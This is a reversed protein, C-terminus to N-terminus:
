LLKTSRREARPFSWYTKRGKGRGPFNQLGEEQRLSHGAHKGTKGEALSAKSVKERGQSIVLMNGQRERSWPLKTLRRVAEPFSWCTEGTKGEDMSAKSAQERGQFTVLM